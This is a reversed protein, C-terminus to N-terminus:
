RHSENGSQGVVDFADADIWIRQQEALMLEDSATLTILLSEGGSIRLVERLVVVTSKLAGRVDKMQQQEDETWLADILMDRSARRRKQCLLLKLLILAKSRGQWKEQMMPQYSPKAETSGVLKELLFMGLTSLYSGISFLVSEAAYHGAEYCSNGRQIRCRRAAVYRIVNLIGSNLLM